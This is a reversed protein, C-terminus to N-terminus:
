GASEVLRVEEAVSADAILLAHQQFAKAKGSELGVSSRHDAPPPPLSRRLLERRVEM